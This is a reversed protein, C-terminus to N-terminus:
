KLCVVGCPANDSYRASSRQFFRLGGLLRASLLQSMVRGRWRRQSGAHDTTVLFGTSSEHSSFCIFTSEDMHADEPLCRGPVLDVPGLTFAVGSPQLRTDYLHCPTVATTFGAGNRRPKTDAQAPHPSVRVDPESPLSHRCRRERVRGANRQRWLVSM